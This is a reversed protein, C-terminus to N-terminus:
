ALCMLYNLCYILIISFIKPLLLLANIVLYKTKEIKKILGVYYIILEFKLTFINILVIFLTIMISVEAGTKLDNCIVQFPYSNNLLFSLYVLLSLSIILIIILKTKFM